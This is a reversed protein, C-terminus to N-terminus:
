VTTSEHVKEEMLQQYLGELTIMEEKLLDLEYQNEYIYRIIDQKCKKKDKASIRFIEKELVYSYQQHDLFQQLQKTQKCSVLIKEQNFEQQVVAIPQNLVLAGKNIMIVHDIITELESLVHSSILVTMNKQQVLRKLTQIIENRSTPDLNATPEDLLLIEPNHLMAQMLGVKKKMGTSFKSVNKLIHEQLDFEKALLMTQAVAEDYSLHSLRGMYVLYELCSMDSYFNPFEPSYGMLAKAENSGLPYGAISGTGKSAYILGMLLSMTTSKGAGNPGIIGYIKGGELRFSLDDIAKFSGFMKTVHEMVILNDMNLM